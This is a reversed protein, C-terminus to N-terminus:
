NFNFQYNLLFYVITIKNSIMVLSKIKFKLHIIIMSIKVFLKQNLIHLKSYILRLFYLLGLKCACM